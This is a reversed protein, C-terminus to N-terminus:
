PNEILEPKAIKYRCAMSHEMDFELKVPDYDKSTLDMIHIRM